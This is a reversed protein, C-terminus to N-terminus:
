LIYEVIKEEMADIVIEQDKDDLSSFMFVQSLRNKIRARQDTSKPIQKPVFISKQNYKGYAEASVSNRVQKQQKNKALEEKSLLEGEEDDSNDDSDSNGQFQHVILQM